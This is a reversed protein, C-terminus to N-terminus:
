DAAKLSCRPDVSADDEDWMGPISVTSEGRHTGQHRVHGRAGTCVNVRPSAAAATLGRGCLGPRFHFRKKCGDGRTRAPPRVGWAGSGQRNTWLAGGVCGWDVGERVDHMTRGCMHHV